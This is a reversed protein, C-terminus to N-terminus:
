VVVIRPKYAWSCRNCVIVPIAILFYRRHEACPACFCRAPYVGSIAEGVGVGLLPVDEALATYMFRLSAM